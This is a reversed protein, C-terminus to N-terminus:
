RTLCLLHPLALTSRTSLDKKLTDRAGMESQLRVIETIKQIPKGFIKYITFLKGVLKMRNSTLLDPKDKKVNAISMNVLDHIHDIGIVRGKEGM